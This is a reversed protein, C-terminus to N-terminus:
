IKGGTAKYTFPLDGKYASILVELQENRYM